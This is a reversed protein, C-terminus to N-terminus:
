FFYHLHEFNYEEGCWFYSIVFDLWKLFVVCVFNNFEKIRLVLVEGVSEVSLVACLYVVDINFVQASQPPRNLSSYYDVVADM